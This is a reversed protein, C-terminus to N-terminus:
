SKAKLEYWTLTKIRDAIGGNLRVCTRSTAELNSPSILDYSGHIQKILMFFIKRPNVVGQSVPHPWLRKCFKHTLGM